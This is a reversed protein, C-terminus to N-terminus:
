RKPGAPAPMRRRGPPTAAHRGARIPREIYMVREIRIYTTPATPQCMRGTPNDRTAPLRHRVTTPTCTKGHVGATDLMTAAVIATGTARDTVATAHLGGGDVGTGAVAGLASLSRAPATALVLVGVRGPTGAYVSVGPQPARIITVAMGGPTGTDPATFSLPSTCTTPPNARRTDSM